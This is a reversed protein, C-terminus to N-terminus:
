RAECESNDPGRELELITRVCEAVTYPNCTFQQAIGLIEPSFDREIPDVKARAVDQYYIRAPYAFSNNDTAFLYPGYHHDPAVVYYDYRTADGPESIVHYAKAPTVTKTM